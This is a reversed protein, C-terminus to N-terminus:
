GGLSIIYNKDWFSKWAWLSKLPSCDNVLFIIIKFYCEPAQQDVMRDFLWIKYISKIYFFVMRIAGKGIVFGLEKSM